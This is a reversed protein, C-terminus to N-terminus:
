RLLPFFIGRLSLLQGKFTYLVKPNGCIRKVSHKTQFSFSGKSFFFVPRISIGQRGKKSFHSHCGLSGASVPSSAHWSRCGLCQGVWLVGPQPAWWSNHLVHSLLPQLMKWNKFPVFNSSYAKTQAWPTNMSTWHYQGQKCHIKIESLIIPNPKIKGSSKIKRKQGNWNELFPLQKKTRTTFCVLIFCCLHFFKLKFFFARCVAFEKSKLGQCQCSESIYIKYFVM